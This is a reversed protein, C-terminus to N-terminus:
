EDAGRLVDSGRREDLQSRAHRSQYQAKFHQAHTRKHAAVFCDRYRCQELLECMREHQVGAGSVSLERQRSRQHELEDRREVAGDDLWRWQREGTPRLLQEDCYRELYAWLQRQQQHRWWEVDAMVGAAALSDDDGDREVPQVRERQM